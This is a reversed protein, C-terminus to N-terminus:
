TMPRRQPRLRRWRRGGGRRTVPTPTWRRRGSRIRDHLRTSHHEDLARTVAAGDLRKSSAATAVERGLAELDHRHAAVAVQWAEELLVAVNSERPEVVNALLPM